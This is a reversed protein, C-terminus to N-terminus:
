TTHPHIFIFVKLFKCHSGTRPEKLKLCKSTRLPHFVDIIWPVTSNVLSTTSVGCLSVSFRRCKRHDENRIAFFYFCPLMRHRRQVRHGNSVRNIRHSERMSSRVGVRHPTCFHLSSHSCAISRVVGGHRIGTKHKRPSAAERIPVVTTDTQTTTTSYHLRHRQSPYTSFPHQLM